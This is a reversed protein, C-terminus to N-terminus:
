TQSAKQAERVASFGARPDTFVLLIFVMYCFIIAIFCALFTRPRKRTPSFAGHEFVPIGMVKNEVAITTIDALLQVVFQITLSLLFFGATMKRGTTTLNFIIVAVNAAILTLNDVVVDLFVAEGRVLLARKQQEEGEDSATKTVKGWLKLIMKERHGQTARSAVEVVFSFVSLFIISVISSAGAVLLRGMASMITMPIALVLSSSGDVRGDDGWDSRALARGLLLQVEILVPHLVTRLLIKGIDSTRVWLWPVLFYYVAAVVCVALNLRGVLLSLKWSLGSHRAGLASV